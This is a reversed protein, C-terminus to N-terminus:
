AAGRTQLLALKEARLLREPDPNPYCLLRKELKSMILFVASDPCRHQNPGTFYFGTEGDKREKAAMGCCALNPKRPLVAMGM